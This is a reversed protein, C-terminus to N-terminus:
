HTGMLCTLPLRKQLDLKLHTVEILHDSADYLMHSAAATKQSAKSPFVSSLLRILPIFISPLVLAALDWFSPAGNKFFDSAAQM